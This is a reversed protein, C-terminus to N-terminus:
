REGKDSRGLNVEEFNPLHELSNSVEVSKGNFQEKIRAFNKTGTKYSLLLFLFILDFFFLIAVLYIHYLPFSLFTLVVPTYPALFPNLLISLPTNIVILLLSFINLLKSLEVFKLVNIYKSEYFLVFVLGAFPLLQVSGLSILWYLAINNKTVETFFISIVAIFLLFIRLIEWVLATILKIKGTKM